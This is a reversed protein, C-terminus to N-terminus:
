YLAISKSHVSYPNFNLISKSWGNNIDYPFVLSWISIVNGLGSYKMELSFPFIRSGTSCGDTLFMIGPWNGFPIFSFWIFSWDYTPVTPASATAM